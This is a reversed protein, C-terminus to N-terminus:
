RAAARRRHGAAARSAARTPPPLPPDEALPAPPTHDGAPASTLDTQISRLRRDIEALRADLISPEPM